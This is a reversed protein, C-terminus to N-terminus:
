VSQQYVAHSITYYDQDLMHVAQDMPNYVTRYLMIGATFDDFVGSESITASPISPSFFGGFRMVTGAALSFGEAGFQVRANEFQLESDSSSVPITGTGSAITVYIGSGTFPMQTNMGLSNTVFEAIRIMGDNVIKNGSKGVQIPEGFDKDTTQDNYARDLQKDFADALSICKRDKMQKLVDILKFLKKTNEIDSVDWTALYEVGHYVIADPIDRPSLGLPTPHLQARRRRLRPPFFPPFIDGEEESV